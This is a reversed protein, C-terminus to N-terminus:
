SADTLVEVFLPLVLGETKSMEKKREEQYVFHLLYIISNRVMLALKLTQKLLTEEKINEKDEKEESARVNIFRHTLANRTNRLKKYPGSELDKHIDFLANLSFNHTNRIKRHIQKKDSYWLRNFNIKTEPIDLELYYNIFFAIKDLIDYLGKFATKILQIRINHKSRDLTDIIFIRKNVFEINLEKYQSLFLLFRFTAFDMKMQNLFSALTLFDDSGAPVTMMPIIMIDGIAIDCSQCFICTNLYLGHKLSSEVIFRELKSNAKIQCGEIKPEKELLSRPMKERIRRLEAEFSSLAEPPVGIKLAKKLCFYAELAFRKQHESSLAAYYLLAKGKNGLAMGFNPKIKLAEEYCELADIVRGITDYCNGLNVLNRLRLEVDESALELSKRLNNKAKALETQELFGTLPNKMKKLNFLALYGNARNYYAVPANKKNKVITKFDKELLSIGEEVLKKDKLASGIDVFLAGTIQSVAPFQGLAKVQNAIELAGNFDGEDMKREALQSLERLRDIKM